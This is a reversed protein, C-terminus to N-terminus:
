DPTGTWMRKGAVSSTSTPFIGKYAEVHYDGWLVNAYGNHRFHAPSVGDAGLLSAGIAYQDMSADNTGEYRNDVLFLASAPERLQTTKRWSSWPTGGSVTRFLHYSLGYNGSGSWMARYSPCITIRKGKYDSAASGLKVTYERLWTPWNPHNVVWIHGSNPIDNTVLWPLVGNNDLTYMHIAMGIQRQQSGCTVAKAQERARGLSPLLIAILIVIIAVVVLLEILTFARRKTETVTQHM